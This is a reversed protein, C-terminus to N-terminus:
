HQHTYTQTVVRQRDRSAVQSEARPTRFSWSVGLSLAHHMAHGNQGWVTTVVSAFVDMSKTAAVTLGGGLILFNSRSTQDHHRWRYNDITRSSLPFDQPTDLGGHSVQFGELARLAVRRTIFYGVESDFNSHNPRVGDVRRVVGYSYRVQFYAKPILPSLQRGLYAGLRLEPIRNGVASHAFFEYRHSPVVGAVFPTFAFGGARFSYRLGIGFDQFTGHYDGSDIPLQHPRNGQYRSTVYPLSLNLAVRSSLGYEAFVLVGHAQIHGADFRTGDSNLHDVVALNQYVIAVSGEGKPPVWAQGFM